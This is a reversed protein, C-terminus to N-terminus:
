LRLFREVEGWIYDLSGALQHDDDVLNLEVNPRAKAWQEVASPAVVTDKRGQFIQIPMPLEVDTCDYECADVYFQYDIPMVRRYGYHFVNTSGTAKWEELSRDGLPTARKGGFDLAPALLVLKVVRDPRKRAVHVAVFAGLSSGILVVPKALPLADITSTIQEVMRTITLKAFDPENLDPAFLKIGHGRLKEAFFAAKTSATSSAFGHLYYIRMM